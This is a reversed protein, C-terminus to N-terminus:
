EEPDPELVDEDEEDVAEEDHSVASDPRHRVQFRELMEDRRHEDVPAEDSVLVWETEDHEDSDDFVDTDIHPSDDVIILVETQPNFYTGPRNALEDLDFTRPGAV